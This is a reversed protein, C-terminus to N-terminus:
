TNPSMAPCREIRRQVAQERDAALQRLRRQGAGARQAFVPDALGGVGVAVVGDLPVAFPLDGVLGEAVHARGVADAQDQDVQQHHRLEAAVERRQDDHRRNRQRMMPTIGPWASSPACNVAVLMIPMIASAPMMTRLEMRSTSKMSSCTACPPRERSATTSAAATRAWGIASVPSAAIIPAKKMRSSGIKLPRATDSIKPMRTEVRSVSTTM